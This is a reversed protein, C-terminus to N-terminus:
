CKVDKFEYGYKEAYKEATSGVYGYIVVKQNRSFIKKGIDTNPNLFTIKSFSLCDFFAVNGVLNVNSGVTFEKLSECDEFCAARIKKIGEGCNVCSLNKCGCFAAEDIYKLNNSATVKEVKDCEFFAYSNVTVTNEHINVEGSRGSPCCILKSYDKDYLVGNFTTYNPNEENVSVYSLNKCGLLAFEGWSKVNKGIYMIEINECAGFALRSVKEVSEPLVIEHIGTCGYFAYEDVCVLGEPFFVSEIESKDMFVGFYISKVTEPIVVTEAYGNYATLCGNEDIVFDNPSSQESLIKSTEKESECASCSFASCNFFVNLILSVIFLFHMSKKLKCM